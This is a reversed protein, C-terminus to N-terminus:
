VARRRVSSASPRLLNAARRTASMVSPQYTACRHKEMYESMDLPVMANEDDFLFECRVALETKGVGHPRPLHLFWDATRTQL